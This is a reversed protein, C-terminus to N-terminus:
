HRGVVVAGIARDLQIRGGVLVQDAVAEVRGGRGILERGTGVRADVHQLVDGVDGRVGLRRHRRRAAVRDRASASSANSFFVV